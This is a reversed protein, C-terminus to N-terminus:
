LSDFGVWQSAPTQYNESYSLDNEHPAVNILGFELLGSSAQYISDAIFKSVLGFELVLHQNGTNPTTYSTLLNKFDPSHQSAIYDKNLIGSSEGTFLYSLTLGHDDCVRISVVPHLQPNFGIHFVGSSSYHTYQGTYGLGRIMGSVHGTFVTGNPLNSVVYQRALVKKPSSGSPISILKSDDVDINNGEIQALRRDANGTVNWFSSHFPINNPVVPGTSYFYVRSM